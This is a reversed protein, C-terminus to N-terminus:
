GPTSKRQRSLHSYGTANNINGTIDNGIKGWAAFSDDIAKQAVTTDTFATKYDATYGAVEKLLAGQEDTLLNEGQLVQLKQTLEDYAQQWKDVANATDGEGVTFGHIAFDRRLSACKDVTVILEMAQDTLETYANM